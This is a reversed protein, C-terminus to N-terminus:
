YVTAGFLSIYTPIFRLGLAFCRPSSNHMSMSEYNTGFGPSAKLAPPLVVLFLIVFELISYYM